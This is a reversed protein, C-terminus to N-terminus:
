HMLYNYLMQAAEARTLSDQARLYGGDGCIVKLGSLIAAYGIRDKSLGEKDAFDIKFINSLKAVRELGTMRIMYVFSNERTVSSSENREDKTIIASNYLNDYLTDIDYYLYDTYYLGAAFLRFLDEQTIQSDPNFQDGALAIGSEALKKVAEESWHGSIDSYNGSNRPQQYGVEPLLEGTIADIRLYSRYDLSYCLKYKGDSLVYMKTLPAEKLIRDYAKGESIAGKPDKFDVNKEFNQNFSILTDNLADYTVYIGNNIYPVNNVLRTYQVNYNNRSSNSELKVSQKLEEGAYTELFNKIAAEASAKQSDTLEDKSYNDTYNYVSILKGTKADVSASFSRYNNEDNNFLGIYLVYGNDNKSIRTENVKLSSDLKLEKINRLAQEVEEATKLGAVNKLEAIEAETLATERPSEMMAQDATGKASYYYNGWYNDAKVIEGTYASIFGINNDKVRYILEVKNNDRPWESRFPFITYQKEYIMEVPFAAKYSSESNSIEKGADEFVADYDYGIHLSTVYIDKDVITLNATSDNNKVLVGDKIRNFVFNYYAGSEYVTSTLQSEDMVLQDNKN